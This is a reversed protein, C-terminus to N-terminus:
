EKKMPKVVDILKLLTDTDIGRSLVLETLTGLQHAQESDMKDIASDVYAKLKNHESNETPKEKQEEKIDLLTNISVNFFIALKKLTEVDPSRTGREYHSYGQKTINLYEAVELQTYGKQTRIERLNM